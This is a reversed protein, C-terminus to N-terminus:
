LWGAPISSYNSLKTDSRFCASKATVAKLTSDSAWYAPAPGVLNVCGAFCNTMDQMATCTRFLNPGLGTLGNCAWFATMCTTIATNYRFLDSDLIGTIASSRILYAIDTLRTLNKFLDKDLVGNISTQGGHPKAPDPAPNDLFQRLTTVNPCNDFFHPPIAYTNTPDKLFVCDTFMGSLNQVLPCNHLLGAPLWGTLYWCYAFMNNMDTIKSGSMFLRPPITGNFQAHKCLNFLGNVKTLNVQKDLLGYSNVTENQGLLQPRTSRNILDQRDDITLDLHRYTVVLSTQTSPIVVSNRNRTV